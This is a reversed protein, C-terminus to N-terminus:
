LAQTVFNYLDICTVKVLGPANTGEIGTMTAQLKSLQLQASRLTSSLLSDNKSEYEDDTLRISTRTTTSSNSDASSHSQQQTLSSCLNELKAIQNKLYRNEELAKSLLSQLLLLGSLRYLLHGISSREELTTGEAADKYHVSAKASNVFSATRTDM